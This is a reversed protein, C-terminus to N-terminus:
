KLVLFSFTEPNLFDGYSPGWTVWKDKYDWGALNFRLKLGPSPKVGLEAWPIAAEVSWDTDTVHTKAESHLYVSTGNMKDGDYHLGLQYHTSDVQLHIELSDSDWSQKVLNLRDEVFATMAVYLNQDDYGLYAIRQNKIM